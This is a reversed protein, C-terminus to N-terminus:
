KKIIKETQIKGDLSQITLLYIGQPYASMDITWQQTSTHLLQGQINSLSVSAIGEATINLIDVVPNPYIGVVNHQAESLSSPPNNEKSIAWWNLKLGGKKFGVRIKQKGKELTAKMQQTNWVDVGKKEFTFSSLEINNVSIYIESDDDYEAALRFFINYEGAEPVDVNYDVWDGFDFSSLNLKGSEDNTKELNIGKMRIYHESPIQKDTGFYFNDDYSSMNVFIEGLDTLVGENRKHLLDMFPLTTFSGREKFWAYRYIDPDTELYDFVEVMFKAQSKETQQTGAACFETLWIPKGFKKFTEISSKVPGSAGMYLHIAIHDVRCDPCAAFFDELYRVPDTYAIGNEVVANGGAYNVAPGVITLGFEDAIAELEPWKAAAAIPGMNAQDGFNPENFGLIYKIEPHKLLYERLVDRNVGNWAMPIFDVGNDLMSKDIEADTIKHGWNYVWSLGPSLVEIDETLLTNYGLGRKFSKTQAQLLAFSFSFIMFSFFYTYAKSYRM